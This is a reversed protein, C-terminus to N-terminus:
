KETQTLTIEMRPNAKDIPGRIWRADDIQGDDDYCEGSLGDQVLKAFNCVDRTRSRNPEYVVARLTVRGKLPRRHAMLRNVMAINTIYQKARRYKISLVM